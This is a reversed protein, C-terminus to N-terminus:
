RADNEPQPVQRKFATDDPYSMWMRCLATAFDFLDRVPMRLEWRTGPRPQSCNGGFVVFGIENRDEENPVFAFDGHAVAHRMCFLFTGFSPFTTAVERVSLPWTTPPLQDLSVNPIPNLNLAEPLVIVSLLSNFVETVEYVDRSYSERSTQIYTINKLTREAIAQIIRNPAPNTM